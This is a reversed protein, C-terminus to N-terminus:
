NWPNCLRPKLNLFHLMHLFVLGHLSWVCPGEEVGFSGDVGDCRKGQDRDQLIHSFANWNTLLGYLWIPSKRYTFRTSPFHEGRRSEGGDCIKKRFCNHCSVFYSTSKAEDFAVDAGVM